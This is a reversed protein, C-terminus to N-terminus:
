LYNKVFFIKLLLNFTQRFRKLIIELKLSKSIFRQASCRMNFPKIRLNIHFANGYFLALNIKISLAVNKFVICSNNIFYTM